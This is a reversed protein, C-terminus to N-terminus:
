FYRRVSITKRVLPPFEADWEGKVSSNLQRLHLHAGTSAFTHRLFPTLEM